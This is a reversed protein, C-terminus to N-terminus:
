QWGVHHALRKLQRVGTAMAADDASQANDLAWVVGDLSRWRSLGSWHETFTQELSERASGGWLLVTGQGELWHQTTLNPAIAEVTHPNGIVLLL